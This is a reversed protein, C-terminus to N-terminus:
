FSWVVDGNKDYGVRVGNELQCVRVAGAQYRHYTKDLRQAQRDEAVKFRYYSSASSKKKNFDFNKM